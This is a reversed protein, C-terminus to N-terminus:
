PAARGSELLLADLFRSMLAFASEEALKEDDAPGHLWAWTPPWAQGLSARSPIVAAPLSTIAAEYARAEDAPMLTVALAPIGGLVLGLDDSWPLRVGLPLPLGSASAARLALDVLGRHGEALRSTGLAGRELLERPASSFILQEGRGTVDLVLVPPLTAAKAGPLRSRTAAHLARALVYSGQSEIGANGQLEEGDTFLVLIPPAKRQAKGDYRAAFELLQLCACSNDLVGPSGPARDYHAALVLAPRGKGLKVMLHRSRGTKIIHFPLSRATCMSALLVLRESGPKLFRRAEEGFDM